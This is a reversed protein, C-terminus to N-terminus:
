SDLITLGGLNTDNNVKEFFTVNLNVKIDSSENLTSDKSNASISIDSVLCRYKCNIIENILNKVNSYGYTVFSISAKRRVTTDTLTPDGWTISLDKVGSLIESLEYIENALNNYEATEGYVDNAHEKLYEEMQKQQILQNQYIMVETQITETNYSDITSIFSKYVAEYYFIGLGILACVILLISERFSFKYNM